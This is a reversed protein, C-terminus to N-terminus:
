NFIFSSLSDCIKELNEYLRKCQPISALFVSGYRKEYIRRDLVVVAGKDTSRRMLRGIGQRFKIVAEPVSLEMFSNGGRKQIAEARATFVPDNPVTFPLKVIIVQSLSEGPVDVGQWFSDTAFLVSKIDKRFNELLRGNDDDGQKYIAGGFGKLHRVASNYCSRLSEYSTFLVLTRGDSANILRSVAAEIWAQFNIEDPFPADKPVAFLMNKEYPFPSPFEGFSVREKEAFAVGSRRLWYNFDRGTKLTASTCVVTKMPEYVGENMMPAIDLPTENLIVYSSNGEGSASDKSLSRKTIWFVKDKKENWSSFDRLVVASDELRRLIVKTEFFAPVSRDDEGVGEMVERCLGVFDDISKALTSCLSILAGFNRSNGEFLRLTYDESLLDLAATEMNIIDNKIKGVKEYAFAAKDENSSLIALTCLYGAESNKRKRYLLNMQKILKFRNFNESFFSTAASEIGHAEDFIIRRFPPLVAVDDYGAGHMRSEIDAFLLHHNVVIINAGSAEKRMKMVFCESHFPCRMGMCADSESNIRTWVSEPPLFSIDSRSGTSTKSIWESLRDFIETDDGFLERQASAEAFRRRCVFNQRGKMLVFKIDAGIIKRAAPLDKECLQQQLNITGTSVVIRENNKLSWLIAPILYAYSKGVGTGAEFVGISNKNFAEAIKKLLHVQVPREEFNESAVSLPGGDSIYSGAEEVDIYSVSKQVVPKVVVYIESCENNVIYFGQANESAVSAVSIDADSPVLNGSPHNHILVHGNRAETFHVPVSHANGKAAAVVSVVTGNENIKGSFFVENGGAEKVAARIQAVVEASFYDQINKHEM